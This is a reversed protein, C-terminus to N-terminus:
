EDSEAIAVGMRYYGEVNSDGNNKPITIGYVIEGLYDEFIEASGGVLLIEDLDTQDKWKQVIAQQINTALERVSNNFVDTFDVPENKKSPKYEYRIDEKKTKKGNPENVVKKMEKQVKEIITLLDYDTATHSPYHRKIESNIAEYIDKFGESLSHYGKQRRLEHVVDLDTTGAGIDVVAVKMSEYDEDFVTGDVNLYRGIVTSLAQATVHIHAIRFTYKEGNVEVDHFGSNEGYFANSIDTECETDTEISPVGTVLLIKEKADIELDRVIRSMVIKAMLKYSETKYRGEYGFVPKVKDKLRTIDKGWVYSNGDVKYTDLELVEDNKSDGVDRLYAYGSPLTLKYEEGNRYISRIKVFGNGLDVGVIRDYTVVKKKAM